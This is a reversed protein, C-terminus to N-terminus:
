CQVRGGVLCPLNEVLLYAGITGLLLLSLVVIAVRSKTMRLAISGLFQGDERSLDITVSALAILALAVIPGAVVAASVIIETTDNRLDFVTGFFGDYISTGGFGYKLVSAVAFILAPVVFASAIPASWRVFRPSMMPGGQETFARVIEEPPGFEEIAQLQADLDSLGHDRYRAASEILHEKVEEHVRWETWSRRRFLARLEELYAAIPPCETM